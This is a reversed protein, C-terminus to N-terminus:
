KQPLKDEKKLRVPKTKHLMLMVSPIVALQLAIGPIGAVIVGAFFGSFSFNMGAMGLLSLQVACRVARGVLMASLLSLVLSRMCKWKSRNYLIGAVLAYTAMEFAISIAEPYMNPRAFILSRLIPLVFAMPAAYKEGCILACLFVPIHMPLLSSGIQPIQGTLMPLIFGMALFMATLTLNKSNFYTKMTKEKMEAKKLFGRSKFM